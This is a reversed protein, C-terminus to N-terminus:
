RAYIQDLAEAFTDWQEESRCRTSLPRPGIRSNREEALSLRGCSFGHNRVNEDTQLWHLFRTVISESSLSDNKSESCHIGGLPNQVGILVRQVCNEQAQRTAETRPLVPSATKQLAALYTSSFRIHTMPYTLNLVGARRLLEEMTLPSQIPGLRNGNVLVPAPTDVIFIERVVSTLFSILGEVNGNSLIITSLRLSVCRVDHLEKKQLALRIATTSIGSLNTLNLRIQGKFAFAILQALVQPSIHHLSRRKM